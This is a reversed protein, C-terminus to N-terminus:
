HSAPVFRQLGLLSFLRQQMATMRTLCTATPTQRQGQRRPYLRLRAISKRREHLRLALSYAPSSEELEGHLRGSLADECFSLLRSFCAKAQTQTLTSPEDEGGYEAIVLRLSGDVDDEAVGDVGLARNRTGTGRFYCAEFDSVEEADGLLEACLDVFEEHTFNSAASARAKVQEVFDQRYEIVQM